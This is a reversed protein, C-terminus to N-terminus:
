WQNKGSEQLYQDCELFRYGEEIVEFAHDYKKPDPAAARGAASKSELFIGYLPCLARQRQAQQTASTEQALADIRNTNDIMGNGVIVMVVTLIVDLIGGIVVGWIMIRNRRATKALSVFQVGSEAALQEVEQGLEQASLILRDLKEAEQDTM